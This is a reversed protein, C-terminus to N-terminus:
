SPAMKTRIGTGKKQLFIRDDFTFTNNTLILVISDIIFEKSFRANLSGPHKNIWYELAKEGLEHNINIYMSTVDFFVLITSEPVTKPLFNLFDM